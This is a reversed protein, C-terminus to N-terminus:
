CFSIIIMDILSYVVFGFVFSYTQQKYNEIMKLLCKSFVFSGILVSIFLTSLYFFDFSNIALITREYIGFFLLMYSFSIGPLVLSLALPFGIIFLFFHNEYCDSFQFYNNISSISASILFGCLVAFAKSPTIKLELSNKVFLITSVFSIFIFVSKSAFPYHSCFLRLPFSLLLISILAGSGLPLLTFFSGKFHKRIDAVAKVIDEFTRTIVAMTGGSLGPIIVGTGILFGKFIRPFNLSIKKM